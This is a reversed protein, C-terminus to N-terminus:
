TPQFTYYKSKCKSCEFKSFDILIDSSNEGDENQIEKESIPHPAVEEYWYYSQRIMLGLERYNKPYGTFETIGKCCLPRDEFQMFLPIKPTRNYKEILNKNLLETESKDLNLSDIYNSIKKIYDASYNRTLTEEKICSECVESIDDDSSGDELRLIGAYPYTLVDKKCIHCAFTSHSKEADKLFQKLAKDSILDFTMGM